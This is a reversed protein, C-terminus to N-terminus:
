KSSPQSRGRWSTDHAEIVCAETPTGHLTVRGRLERGCRIATEICADVSGTLRGSEVLDSCTARASLVTEAESRRSVRAGTFIGVVLGAVTLLPVARVVGPMVGGAGGRRQRFYARFCLGFFIVFLVSNVMTLPDFMTELPRPVRTFANMSLMALFFGSVWACVFLGGAVLVAARLRIGAGLVNQEAM